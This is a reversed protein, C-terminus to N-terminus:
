HEPSGTENKELTDLKFTLVSPIDPQPLVETRPFHILDNDCDAGPNNVLATPDRILSVLSGEQQAAFGRSTLRSGNYLWKALPLPAPIATENTRLIILDSLSRTVNTGRAKWTLSIEVANSDGVRIPTSAETGLKGPEIGLLLFALHVQAPEAPTSLLSEYTKGREHVLAYEIVGTRVRVRAPLSVTRLRNDFEVMGIRFLNSSIQHVATGNLSELSPRNSRISGATNTDLGGTPWYKGTQSLASHLCTIAFLSVLLRCGVVRGRFGCEM